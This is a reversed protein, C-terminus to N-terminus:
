RARRTRLVGMWGFVIAGIAAAGLLVLIGISTGTLALSGDGASIGAPNPDTGTAPLDAATITVADWGILEGDATYLAVRHGGLALGAPTVIRVSGDAVTAAGLATPDSFLFAYTDEGEYGAPLSITIAQGPTFRDPTVTIRGDLSAELDSEAPAWPGRAGITLVAEYATGERQGLSQVFSLPHAGSGSLPTDLTITWTGDAAVTTSGTAADEVTVTAGAFGTGTVESVVADSALVTGTDTTLAFHAGDGDIDVRNTLFQSTKLAHDVVRTEGVCGHWGHEPETDWTSAGIIWPMFDAAMMGGVGSANRLVPVGDVYMVVTDAKPDNVIAVHHWASQMIEGSWLTYSNHTDTDAASWQYERLNSVGLWAAGAGPDSSDNIGSWQRSGGRTIAASWRNATETWQADLQLFTEITYGSDSDLDAMTIPAGYETSLFSMRDPGTTNRQSNDFCVAGFDASYFPVNEHTVTVDELEEVADTEDIPNRYMPSEGAVDPIETTEDVVGEEIGGFRWHALTGDAEIYDASSGAAAKADDGGTGEWGAAAIAKVRESLDGNDEDAPDVTWGFRAGFDLDVSFSQWPGDLVPTDSSAITDAHKRTVWPSVTEIDIRNNTLDFEILPMIGNGGDAAMQYDALVQYVPHGADNVRTQSTSGHFHGNVTMIIQDNKRILTDWLLDGFWWPAPSLQDEAINIISHSTVIVPVNPHADLIGQAWAITDDSANWAFALSMWQHGEAEFLYASSLGNQYTGILRDGAQAKLKSASFRSLYNGSIGESSRANMDKVDHNGPAVSYPVGGDTLIKMAKEAADWEGTVWEQDVVDGVHAVFPINLEDQNEVIWNTQVEFPNTGYAPVFQSASYRSYFQTDPLIPLTFSSRQDEAPETPADSAAARPQAPAPEVASAAGSGLLTCGAVAALALVSLTSRVPHRFTPRM